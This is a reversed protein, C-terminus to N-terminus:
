IIAERTVRKKRHQQDSVVVISVKLHNLTIPLDMHTKVCPEHRNLTQTPQHHDNTAPFRSIIMLQEKNPNVAAMPPDLETHICIHIEVDSGKSPWHLCLSM